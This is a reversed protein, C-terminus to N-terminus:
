GNQRQMRALVESWTKNVPRTRENPNEKIVKVVNPNLVLLCDVDWGLLADYMDHNCVYEIADYQQAIKEFDPMWSTTGKSHEFAEAFSWLHRGMDSNMMQENDWMMPVKSVDSLKELKLVRADDTLEFEFYDDSGFTNGAEKKSWTVWASGNDNAPSAWLGGDPKNRIPVNKIPLFKSPDYNGVAYTRFPGSEIILRLQEETIQIISPRRKSEYKVAQNDHVGKVVNATQVKAVKPKQVKTQRDKSHPKRFANEAGADKKAQKFGEIASTATNLTNNVWLKMPTGGNLIYDVSEDSGTYNDFFNKIRKMENYAIGNEMSLINHLRKYGLVTKDGDYSALTQELHKRIGKGLPFFRGKLESNGGEFIFHTM